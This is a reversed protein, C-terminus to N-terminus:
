AIVSVNGEEDPDLGYQIKALLNGVFTLCDECLFDDGFKEYADDHGCQACMVAEELANGPDSFLDHMASWNKFVIEPTVTTTSMNKEKISIHV